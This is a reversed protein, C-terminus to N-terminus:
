VGANPCATRRCPVGSTSYIFAYSCTTMHKGCLAATNSLALAGAFSPVTQPRWSTIARTKKKRCYAQLTNPLRCCTLGCADARLESSSVLEFFFHPVLFSHRWSGTAFAHLRGATAGHTTNCARLTPAVANGSPVCPFGCLRARAGSCSSVTACLSLFSNALVAPIGAGGTV